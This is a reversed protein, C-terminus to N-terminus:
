AFSLPVAQTRPAATLRPIERQEGGALRREIEEAQEAVTPAEFLSRLPLAVKFVERVRAILQTARLSHGGLEFFDDSVGVQPVKLVEAWISALLSESESRPAQYGQSHDVHPTADPLAKRDVKGNVTLPLQELSVFVSPVMYEPLREKLYQRLESSSQEESVVYAVLRKGTEDEQVVVVCDSVHEHEKLAVEIEGLEIRFGRVKVQEDVRGVFELAGDVWRVIDGTRYLREGGVESFPDPVFKEATIEPRGLYGRALGDGGLYLEGRVGEPVVRQAADLVYARTNAIGRGIPVTVTGVEKVEHWTAFTTSETPGYVHLLREPGNGEVVERVRKVDVAEGGFLLHKVGAFAGQQQQALQNFWATTVFMTSVEHERLQRTLREVDLAEEKAILVLQAGNGLAGWVEFTAADFSINSVQAVRDKSELQVYDTEKVLRVIAGHPVAVGKPEGTSGSTYIVYALNEARVGSTVNERSEGAVVEWESDLSLVHAGSEPLLERLREQTLLVRAGSEGLMYRLRAAPYQVDLPVYAGGAKLVGLLGVVMEVTREVCLGVMSEPGVGQARLYHALQNARENLERYSLRQEGAVVAIAEPRLRAQEEFLEHVCQERPYDTATQNYDRLLQEAEAGSLLGLELVRQQPQSVMQKLLTRLQRLLARASEQEICRNDYLVMLGVQDGSTGVLTLPYNTSEVARVQSIGGGKKVAERYGDVPYNEFVMLNEFLPTGAPLESWKQLEVLPTHEYQRMEGVQQQLERLWESVRQQEQVQVVLPLSNIFLGVMREVGRLEAPRGSVTVGFVVQREGSYRSLLVAWAGQVITNLTLQQERGLQQLQESLEAGLVVQENQYDDVGPEGVAEGEVGLRTPGHVGRLQAEWYRRAQELDQRSLWSIYDRYPRVPELKATEGRQAAEYLRFVEEFVLPFSWGDLLLHHFSWIFRYDGEGLRVLSVRQLPARQLEFGREREGRQYEKLREQQQQQDLESWDFYEYPVEVRERVVQLPRELGAWVFSSRLVAHRASVEIWAQRFAAENVTGTLRGSVQTVYPDYEPAYLSHFLMGEQVATLPYLDELPEKVQELQELQTATIQALPFDSPTHQGAMTSQCHRIVARLEAVFRNAVREITAATHLNRSYSFNVILREGGISGNIDLVHRRMGLESYNLGSSERAGSWGADEKLMQGFQGLYNFSVEM